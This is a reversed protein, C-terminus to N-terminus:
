SKHITICRSKGCVPCPMCHVCGCPKTDWRAIWTDGYDEWLEEVKRRKNYRSMAKPDHVRKRNYTEKYLHAQVGAAVEYKRRKFREETPFASEGYTEQFKEAKWLYYFLHSRPENVLEEVEKYNFESLDSLDEWWHALCIEKDKKKKSFKDQEVEKIACGVAKAKGEVDAEWEGREKGGQKCDRMADICVVEVEETEEEEESESEKRFSEVFEKVDSKTYPVNCPIDADQHKRMVKGNDSMLDKRDMRKPSLTVVKFKGCRRATFDGEM